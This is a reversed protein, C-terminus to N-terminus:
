KEVSTLFQKKLYGFRDDSLRAGRVECGTILRLRGSTGQEMSQKLITNVVQM